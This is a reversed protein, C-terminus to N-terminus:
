DFFTARGCILPLPHDASGTVVPDFFCHRFIPPPIFPTAKIIGQRPRFIRSGCANTQNDALTALTSDSIRPQAAHHLPNPDLGAFSLVAFPGGILFPSTRYIRLKHRGDMSSAYDCLPTASLVHFRLQDFVVSSM